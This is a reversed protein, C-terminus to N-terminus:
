RSTPTSCVSRRADRSLVPDRDRGAAARAALPVLRHHRKNPCAHFRFRALAYAAPTGLLLRSCRRGRGRHDHQQLFAGDFEPLRRAARELQRLTPTFNVWPIGLGAVTFTDIPNRLSNSFAWYIPFFFIMAIVIAVVSALADCVAVRRSRAGGGTAAREAGRGRRASRAPATETM